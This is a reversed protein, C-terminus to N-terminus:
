KKIILRFKGTKEDVRLDDVEKISYKVSTFKKDKLISDLKKGIRRIVDEKNEDKIVALFDFSKKDKVVIQFKDLGKVFFEVFIFPHIFDMEGDDNEFWPVFEERGIISEVMTFPLIKKEDKKEKLYDDIRYRIIPQTYNYLNTLLIHDEKIEVLAIDDFLYIGGWENKGIGVLVCEVPGYLNVLPANFVSEIFEKDKPLIGEACNEIFKPHVKLKGDKQCQALIKL